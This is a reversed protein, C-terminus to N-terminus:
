QKVKVYNQVMAFRQEQLTKVCDDLNGFLM